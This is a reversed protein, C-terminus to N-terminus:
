LYWEMWVTGEQVTLYDAGVRERFIILDEATMSAETEVALFFTHNDEKLDYEGLQTVGIGFIKEFTDLVQDLIKMHLVPEQKKLNRQTEINEAMTKLIEVTRIASM